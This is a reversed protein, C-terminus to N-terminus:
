AAPYCVDNVKLLALMAGEQPDADDATKVAGLIDGEIEGGPREWGRRLQATKGDMNGEHLPTPSPVFFLNASV